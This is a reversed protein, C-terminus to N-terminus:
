HGLTMLLISRSIHNDIQLINKPRWESLDYSEMSNDMSRSTLLWWWYENYVFRLIPLWVDGTWLRSLQQGRPIPGRIRWSRGGAPAWCGGVRPWPGGRQLRRGPSLYAQHSEVSEGSQPGLIHLGLFIISVIETSIIENRLAKVLIFLILLPFWLATWSSMTKGPWQGVKQRSLSRQLWFYSVDQHESFSAKTQAGGLNSTIANYKSVEGSFNFKDFVIEKWNESPRGLTTSTYYNQLSHRHQSGLAM